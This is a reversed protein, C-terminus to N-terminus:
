YLLYSQKNWAGSDKEGSCVGSDEYLYINMENHKIDHREGQPKADLRKGASMFLIIGRHTPNNEQVLRSGRQVLCKTLQIFTYVCM